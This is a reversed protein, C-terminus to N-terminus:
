IFDIELDLSPKTFLPKHRQRPMKASLSAFLSQFDMSLTMELSLSFDQPWECNNELLRWHHIIL